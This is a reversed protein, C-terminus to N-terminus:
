VIKVRGKCGRRKGDKGTTYVSVIFKPRGPAGVEHGDFWDPLLEPEPPPRKITEELERQLQAIKLQHQLTAEVKEEETQERQKKVVLSISERLDGETAQATIEYNGPDPKEFTLSARGFPNTEEIESIPNVNLFFVLGIEKLPGDKGTVTAIVEIKEEQEIKKLDLRAKVGRVTGTAMKM